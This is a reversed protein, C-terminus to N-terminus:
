EMFAIGQQKTSSGPNLFDYTLMELQEGNHGALLSHLLTNVLSFCSPPVQSRGELVATGKGGSFRTQLKKLVRYCTQLM